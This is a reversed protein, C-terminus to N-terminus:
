HIDELKKDIIEELASKAVLVMGESAIISQKSASVNLLAKTYNEFNEEGKEFRYKVQKLLADVDLSMQMQLRLTTLEQV